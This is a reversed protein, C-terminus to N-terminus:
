EFTVLVDGHAVPQGESVEVSAIVGDRGSRIASKMKMAELFCIHQGIKVSDGVQVQIDVIDGPMPSRIEHTLTTSSTKAAVGETSHAEKPRHQNDAPQAVPEPISGDGGVHVLFLEGNVIVEVPSKDVDGIEVHYTVGRITITFKRSEAKAM